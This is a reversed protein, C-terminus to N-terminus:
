LVSIQGVNSVEIIKYIKSPDKQNSVKIGISYINTECNIDNARYCFVPEPNPRKFVIDVTDGFNLIEQSGDILFSSILDDSKITFIELCENLSSPEGCTPNNTDYDYVKDGDMDAFLVFSTKSGLHSYLANENLAFHVGYGINLFNGEIGQVGIAYSQAQRVTLAIDDALNQTSTYSDFKAYNFISIGTIIIFISVVVLLEVITLGADKRSINKTIKNILM